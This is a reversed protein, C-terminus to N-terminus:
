SGVQSYMATCRAFTSKPSPMALCPPDKYGAPLDLGPYTISRDLLGSVLCAPLPTDPTPYSPTQYERISAGYPTPSVTQHLSCLPYTISDSPSPSVGTLWALCQCAPLTTDPSTDWQTQYQRLPRYIHYPRLPRYLQYQRISDYLPRSAKGGTM